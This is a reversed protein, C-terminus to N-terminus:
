RAGQLGGLAVLDTAHSDLRHDLVYRLANITREFSVYSLLLAQQEPSLCSIFEQIEVRLGDTPKTPAQNINM